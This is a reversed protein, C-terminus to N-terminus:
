IVAERCRFVEHPLALVAKGCRTELAELPPEVQPALCFWSRLVGSDEDRSARSLVRWFRPVLSGHRLNLVLFSGSSFDTSVDRSLNGSGEVGTNWSKGSQSPMWGQSSPGHSNGM